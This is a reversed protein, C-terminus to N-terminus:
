AGGKVGDSDNLDSESDSFLRALDEEETEDDFEDEDAIDDTHNRMFSLFNVAEDEEDSDFSDEPDEAYAPITIKGSEDNPDKASMIKRINEGAKAADVRDNDDNLSKLFEDQSLFEVNSQSTRNEGLAFAAYASAAEKEQQRKESTYRRKYSGYSFLTLILALLFGAAAGCFAPLLLSQRSVGKAIEPYQVVRMASVANNDELYKYAVDISRSVADFASYPDASASQIVVTGEGLDADIRLRLTAPVSEFGNLGELITYPGNDELVDGVAAASVKTNGREAAVYVKAESVYLGPFFTMVALLVALFFIVASLLINIFKKGIWKWLSDYGQEHKTSFESNGMSERVAM